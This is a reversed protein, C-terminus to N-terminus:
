AWKAIMQRVLCLLVGFVSAYRDIREGGGLLVLLGLTCGRASGGGRRAVEEEGFIYKRPCSRTASGM